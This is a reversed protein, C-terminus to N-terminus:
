FLRIPSKQSSKKERQLIIDISNYKKLPRDIFFPNINPNNTANIEATTIVEQPPPPPPADFAGFTTTTGSEEVFVPVVVPLPSIDPPFEEVFVPVVVPLPSIDPPFEEVTPSLLLV